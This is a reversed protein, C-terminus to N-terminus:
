WKAQLRIRTATVRWGHRQVRLVCLCKESLVLMLVYFLLNFVSDYLLCHPARESGKWLLLIYLEVCAHMCADMTM